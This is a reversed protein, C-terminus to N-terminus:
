QSFIFGDSQLLEKLEKEMILGNKIEDSTIDSINVSHNFIEKICNIKPEDIYEGQEKLWEYFTLTSESKQFGIYKDFWYQFKKEANIQKINYDTGCLICLDLLYSSKINLINLIKNYDYMIVSHNVLSLYRLVRPCGYAFMDMDESLCAYVLNNKVLQACLVDAEGPAEQFCVGFYTFLLKITNIKNSNMTVAKKQFIRLQNMMDLSNNGNNILDKLENYKNIADIKEDRRKQFIEKKDMPIKGDFIFLPTIKYKKLTIILLYFQELLNGNSEYKYLFISTDIVIKKGKLVSLHLNDIANKCTKQLFNNLTPIGM